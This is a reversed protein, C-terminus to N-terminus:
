TERATKNVWLVYIERYKTLFHEIMANIVLVSQTLLSPVMYSQRYNQLNNPEKQSKPSCKLTFIKCIKTFITFNPWFDDNERIKVYNYFM